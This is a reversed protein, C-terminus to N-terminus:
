FAEIGGGGVECRILHLADQSHYAESWQRATDPQAKLICGALHM